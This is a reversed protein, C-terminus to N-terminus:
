IPNESLFDSGNIPDAELADVRCVAANLLEEKEYPMESPKAQLTDVKEELEGLRKLVSSLLEAETFSPPTPSPLRFDKPVADLSLELINKGHDSSTEPLKKTVHCAVAHFLTFLTMFFAMFVALIRDRFGEPAKLTDPLPVTGKSVYPKQFSPQNQWCADVAEERVPTLRLHSYSMMAKPSAIDEAESGSEATSTDSNKILPYNPKAYAVVKGESNLVKVVQRARRAEGRLVMKNQYKNGLVTWLLRFGPGANIIFMQHLTLDRAGKTFNKLGVGQVDLITTSSDIHRKAAVTCALFKIAFSKEFEGVHYKNSNVM